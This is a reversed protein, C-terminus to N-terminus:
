KGSTFEAEEAKEAEGSRREAVKRVSGLLAAGRKGYEAGTAPGLNLEKLFFEM